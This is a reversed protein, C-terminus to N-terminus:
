NSQSSSNQLCLFEIRSAELTLDSSSFYTQSELTLLQLRATLSELVLPLWDTQGRGRTEMVAEEAARNLAPSMTEIFSM